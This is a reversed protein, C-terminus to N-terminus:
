RKRRKKETGDEGDEGDDEDVFKKFLHRHLLPYKRTLEGCKDLYLKDWQDKDLGRNGYPIGFEELLKLRKVEAYLRGADSPYVFWCESDIIALKEEVSLEGHKAENL